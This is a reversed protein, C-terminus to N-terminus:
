YAAYLRIIDIMQRRRGPNIPFDNIELENDIALIKTKRMM